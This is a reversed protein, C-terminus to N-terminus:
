PERTKEYLTFSTTIYGRDNGTLTFHVRNITFAQITHEPNAREYIRILGELTEQLLMHDEENVESRMQLIDIKRMFARQSTFTVEEIPYHIVSGDELEILYEYFSQNPLVQSYMGWYTFPYTHDSSKIVQSVTLISVLLIFATQHSVALNRFISHLGAAVYFVLILGVYILLEIIHM